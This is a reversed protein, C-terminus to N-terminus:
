NTKTESNISQAQDLNLTSNNAQFDSVTLQELYRAGLYESAKPGLLISRHRKPNRIILDKKSLSKLFNILSQNSKLNLKLRLEAFTPPMNNERIYEEIARLAWDQKQTLRVM